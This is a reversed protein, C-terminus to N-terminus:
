ELNLVGDLMDVLIAGDDTDEGFIANNKSGLLLFCGLKEHWCLLRSFKVLNVLMNEASNGANYSVGVVENIISSDMALSIKVRLVLWNINLLEDLEKAILLM